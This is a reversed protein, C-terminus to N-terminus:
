PHSRQLSCRQVITAALDDISQGDTAITMDAAAEYKPMREALVERIEDV